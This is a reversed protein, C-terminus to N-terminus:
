NHTSKRENNQFTGNQNHQKVMNRYREEKALINQNIEKFKM